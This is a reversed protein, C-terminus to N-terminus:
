TRPPPTPPKISLESKLQEMKKTLRRTKKAAKDELKKIKKMRKEDELYQKQLKKNEEEALKKQYEEYEKTIAEITPTLIKNETDETQANQEYMIKKTATQTEQYSPPIQGYKHATYDDQKVKNPLKKRKAEIKRKIAYWLGQGLIITIVVLIVILTLFKQIMGYIRNDLAQYNEDIYKKVDTKVITQLENIKRDTYATLETRTKIGEATTHETITQTTVIEQAQISTLQLILMITIIITTKLIRDSTKNNM